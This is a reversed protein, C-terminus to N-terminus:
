ATLPLNKGKALVPQGSVSALAHTFCNGFNLGASHRGKGYKRYAMRPLDAQAADVSVTEIGAEHLFLDFERAAVETARCELVIGAEAATAASLLRKDASLILEIFHEREPENLFIAVSASTDIVMLV